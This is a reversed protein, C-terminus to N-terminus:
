RLRVSNMISQFTRDYQPMDKAPAVLSIVAVLKIFEPLIGVVGHDGTSGGVGVVTVVALAIIEIGTSRRIRRM